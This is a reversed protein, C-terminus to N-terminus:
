VEIEGERRPEEDAVYIHGRTMRKEASQPVQTRSKEKRRDAPVM